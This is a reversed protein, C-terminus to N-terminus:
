DREIVPTPTVLVGGGDRVTLTEFAETRVLAPLVTDTVTGVAVIEPLVEAERDAVETSTCRFAGVPDGSADREAAFTKPLVAEKEAAFV